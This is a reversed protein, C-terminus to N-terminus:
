QPVTEVTLRNLAWTIHEQCLVDDRTTMEAQKLQLANVLEESHPANGAAVALNRVWQQYNIRRLAMGLTRERFTDEDWGLLDVIKARDLEHRPAFDAVETQPAFRNWPCVLQCDDCGFIRNGVLPRLELPISGKCEITLYSICLRADLERPGVIAGTPCLTICSSCSGCHDKGNPESVAFPIDTFIEGLFFFSGADRNLILTNKGVWGLGAKEAISRELVPASDVFARHTGGTAAVLKRAIKALRKRVVKHYDRGLAYRSVYAISPDKLADPFAEPSYDMRASIIRVTGPLLRQPNFRKELNRSLYSMEGHFGRRLWERFEKSAASLDTDSFGVDAFGFDTAWERVQETLLAIDM